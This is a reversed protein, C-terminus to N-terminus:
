HGCQHKRTDSVFFSNIGSHSSGEPRARKLPCPNSPTARDESALPSTPSPSCAPSCSSCQCSSRCSYSSRSSCSSCDFPSSPSSASAPLAQLHLHKHMHLLCLSFSTKIPHPHNCRVISQCKTVKLDQLPPSISSKNFHFQKLGPLWVHDEYKLLFTRCQGALGGFLDQWIIDQLLNKFTPICPFSPLINPRPGM